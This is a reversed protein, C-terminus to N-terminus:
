RYLILCVIMISRAIDIEDAIVSANFGYHIYVRTEYVFQKM